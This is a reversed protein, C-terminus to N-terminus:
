FRRLGRIIHRPIYVLGLWREWRRDALLFFLLNATSFSRSRHVPLDQPPLSRLFLRGTLNRPLLREVVPLPVPNGPALIRLYFLGPGVLSAAEWRLSCRTVEEWDLGESAIIEMLDRFKILRAYRHNCALDLLITVLLHEPRMAKVPFGEWTERHSGEWVDSIRFRTRRRYEEPWHMDVHVDVEVATLGDELPLSYVTWAPAPVFSPREPLPRFGAATLASHLGPLDEERVLLDFDRFPRAGPQRYYRMSLYPGKLPIVTIGAGSLAALARRAGEVVLTSRMMELHYEEEWGRLTSPSVRVPHGLAACDVAVLHLLPGLEHYRADLALSGEEGAGLRSSLLSLNRADGEEGFRYAVAALLFDGAASNGHM